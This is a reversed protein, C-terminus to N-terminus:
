RLSLGSIGPSRTPSLLRALLARLGTIGETDYQEHLLDFSSEFLDPPPVLTAECATAHSTYSSASRSLYSRCTIPRWEYVLCTREPTLLPCPLYEKHFGLLVATEEAEDSARGTRVVGQWVEQLIVEHDCCRRYIAEVKDPFETLLKSAILLGEFSYVDEVWHYCCSFCGKYCTSKSAGLAEEQYRSFAPYFLALAHEIDDLTVASSSLRKFRELSECLDRNVILFGM